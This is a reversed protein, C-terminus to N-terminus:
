DSIEDIKNMWDFVEKGLQFDDPTNVETTMDRKRHQFDPQKEIIGL